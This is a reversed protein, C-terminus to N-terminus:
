VESAAWAGARPDRAARLASYERLRLAALTVLPVGVAAAAGAVTLAAGVLIGGLVSAAAAGLVGARLAPHIGFLRKLGGWPRLLAFWLFGGAGLALVTLPSDILADANALSARQVGYGATGDAFQALMSGLGTREEAGRRLDFVAVVAVLVGGALVAWAMRHVTLWGGTCLAAALCVGTLMAVAGGMNDGLYPSGALVVGVAGVTAVVLPRRRRPVQEALCGAVLLTSAVLIGLGVDGLGAYRGGTHASYGVVSNLQLWSGTLLDAAVAASAVGAAAGVLGLTHRFVPTRIVVAAAAALVALSLVAFVGAPPARWWPVLGAALAAPAVLSAAVLLVPVARRAARHGVGARAPQRLLPLVAAFLALQAVALAALFWTAVPRALVSAQNAAVLEAVAEDLEAPRGATSTVAHGALPVEPAPRDVVALVTPALDVLQLYGTRETTASTLWGPPVGPGHGVAVSLHPGADTEAVGAVLLLSAPPRAAQVRSLAEDVRAAAAARARGEGAVTGLDVIALECGDSLAAAARQPDQPFSGAYADVRGFSRAGAVAAGPGFAVTCEVSGALAGPVAGWPQGEQNYQVLAALDPLQAGAAEGPEITVDLPPCPEDPPGTNGGLLRGGARDAAWNGAGLTLWGDAACTPSTASRVSLSGIAGDQALRWLHPTHVPDVDDWRLGVAGAIIVQEAAPVTGGAAPRVVLGAVTAAGLVTVFVLPVLLSVRRPM